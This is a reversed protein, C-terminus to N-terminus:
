MFEFSQNIDNAFASVTRIFTKPHWGEKLELREM